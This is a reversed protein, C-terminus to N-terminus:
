GEQKHYWRPLVQNVITLAQQRLLTADACHTDGGCVEVEISASQSLSSLIAPMYMNAYECTNALMRLYMRIDIRVYRCIIDNALCM